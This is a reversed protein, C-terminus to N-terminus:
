LRPVKANLLADRILVAADVRGGFTNIELVVAAPKADSAERLVRQLFPALGLDIMGEIPAVYVPSSQQACVPVDLTMILLVAATFLRGCGAGKFDM